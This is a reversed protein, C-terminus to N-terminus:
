SMSVRSLRCTLCCLSVSLRSAPSLKNSAGVRTWCWVGPATRHVAGLRVDSPASGLAPPMDILEPELPADPMPADEEDDSAESMAWEVRDAPAPEPEVHKSFLEDRAHPAEAETMADRFDVDGRARLRSWGTAWENLRLSAGGHRKM